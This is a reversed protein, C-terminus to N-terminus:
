SRAAQWPLDAALYASALDFDRRASQHNVITDAETRQM